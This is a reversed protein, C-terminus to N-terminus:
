LWGITGAGGTIVIVKESGSVYEQGSTLGAGVSITANQPYRLIVVGSGGAASNYCNNYCGGGGGGGGTNATGAAAAREGSGGWGANAGYGGGGTGGDGNYSPTGGGGGGGSRYVSTGTITSAIGTGGVRNSGSSGAGGGGGSAWTVPYNGGSGSGNQGGFGQGSTGSGATTGNSGGGGCGGSNGVSGNAAGGGGGLSTILGFASSGGNGGVINSGGAAGGAGVQVNYSVAEVVTVVTEQSNNGGSTGYSTRYGGAGGGGGTGQGGGGGGGGVVLYNVDFSLAPVDITFTRSSSNGTSDTALVTFSTSQTTTPTGSILGNADMSLGAPLSGSIISYSISETDSAALQVSYPSRKAPAALAGAPTSWVPDAGATISSSKNKGSGIPEQTGPNILKIQYPANATVLNDPRTVILSTASARVVSKALATYGNQGVFYAEVNTAFNGGTISVTSDINPLDSSSISSIYPGVLFNETEPTTELTQQYTMTLIDSQTGGIVVLKNFPASATIAGSSSFGVLNDASDFLYYDVATDLASSAISYPGAPYDQAFTIASESSALSLIVEQSSSSSSGSGSFNSFSIGM